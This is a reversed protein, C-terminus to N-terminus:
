LAKCEFCDLGNLRHVRSRIQRHRLFEGVVLCFPSKTTVPIFGGIDFGGILDINVAGSDVYFPLTFISPFKDVVPVVVLLPAILVCPAIEAFPSM